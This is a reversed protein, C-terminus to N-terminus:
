LFNTFNSDNLWGVKEFASYLRSAKNVDIRCAKQADTRRFPLDNKLREVKSMFLRRKSDLFLDCPLRLIQALYLEAPHLKDKLPDSSLDMHSGKWEVKLCKNNGSPLMDYSPSYDPLKEWEVNPTTHNQSYPATKQSKPKSSTSHNINNNHNNHKSSHQYSRRSLIPSYVQTDSFADDDDTLSRTHRKLAQRTEFKSSDNFNRRRPKSNNSLIPKSIRADLKTSPFSKVGLRYQSLFRRNANIYNYIRQNNSWIPTIKIIDINKETVSDISKNQNDNGITYNLTTNSRNYIKPSQPPSPFSQEDIVNDISKNFKENETDSNNETSAPEKALQSNDFSDFLTNSKLSAITNLQIHEAVPSNLQM